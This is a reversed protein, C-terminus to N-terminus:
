APRGRARRARGRRAPRAARRRRADRLDVLHAAREVRQGRPQRGCCRAGSSGSSISRPRARRARGRCGRSSRRRCRRGGRRRRRRPCGASRACLARRCQLWMRRTMPATSCGRRQACRHQSSCSAMAAAMAAPSAARGFSQHSPVACAGALVHGAVQVGGRPTGAAGVVVPSSRM